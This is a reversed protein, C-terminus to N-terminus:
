GRVVQGAALLDALLREDSVGALYEADVMLLAPRGSREPAGIRLLRTCAEVDERLRSPDAPTPQIDFDALALLHDESEEPLDPNGSLVGVGAEVELLVLLHGGAVLGVLIRLFERAGEDFVPTALLALTREPRM